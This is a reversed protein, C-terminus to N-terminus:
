VKHGIEYGEQVAQYLDQEGHGVGTYSDRCAGCAYISFDRIMEGRQKAGDKMWEYIWTGVSMNPLMGVCWVITDCPIYYQRADPSILSIHVGTADINEVLAHTMETGGHNRLWKKVFWGVGRPLDADRDAKNVLVVDRLNRPSRQWADEELTGAELDVGWEDLFYDVSRSVRQDHLLYSAVDHAIAGNGLLVVRRGAKVTGDLIRRFPVVIPCEQVGPFRHNTIPRAIAGQALVVAHFFQHQKAMEERTFEAHLRVNISSARLQRTWYELLDQYCEKGPIRKALNLQGGIHDGKEFLTVDHGRRWLTLACTVGAPGAGVVAISKKHPAPTWGRELEHGCIPNVACSVRQNTFLRHFCHNCGICPAIAKEAATEDLHEAKAIFQSDALLPRALGIMDCVDGKEMFRKAVALSHIRHSAVVPITDLQRSLLRQKLLQCSRMFTGQPVFSATTHVPSDHMGVSTNFMDVCGTSALAEAVALTEAMTTGDAKLDHLCLRVSVIFTDPAAVAEKIRELVRLIMEVRGELTGGFGDTRHNIASSLFNHLLTGESVPIEVGDFGAEEALRAFRAYESVVYPVLFRPIRRAPRDPVLQVACVETSSSVRWKTRAARGGHMAQALVYGGEKHIAATVRRLSAASDTTDLSLCSAKWRGLRSIGLGGLVILSAGYHARESYFAALADMHEKTWLGLETEMNLYVPQMMFRNPLTVHKIKIPRFLCGIGDRVIEKAPQASRLGWTTRFM